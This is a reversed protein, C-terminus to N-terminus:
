FPLVLSYGSFGSYILVLVVYVFSTKNTLFFVVYVFCFVLVTFLCAPALVAAIAAMDTSTM